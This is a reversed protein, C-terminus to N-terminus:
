NKYLIAAALYIKLTFDFIKTLMYDNYVNVPKMYVNKNLYIMNM